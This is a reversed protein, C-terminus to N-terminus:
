RNIFPNYDDRQGAFPDTNEIGKPDPGYQNAGTDGEKFMLYILYLNVIPILGILLYWGSRNTDHLM